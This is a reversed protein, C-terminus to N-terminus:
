DASTAILAGEACGYQICKKDIYRLYPVEAKTGKAEGRCLRRKRRHVQVVTPSPTLNSKREPPLSQTNHACLPTTIHHHSTARKTHKNTHHPTSLLQIRSRVGGDFVQIRFHTIKRIETSTKKRIGEKSVSQSVRSESGSHDRDLSSLDRRLWGIKKMGCFVCSCCCVM